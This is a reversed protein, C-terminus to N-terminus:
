ALAGDAQSEITALIQARNDAYDADDVLSLARDVDELAGAYDGLEFRVAARNNWVESLKRNAKVAMDLDALAGALDGLARRALARNTAAQADRPDLQLARDFHEIARDQAGRELALTGLGSWARPEDPKLELVRQYDAAAADADGLESHVQARNLHAEYYPPCLEIARAYQELAEDLRGHRQLLNALDNRYEGYNPDMDIARRYSESAAEFDGLMEHVQGTNYVLISQHLAFVGDGYIEEMARLGHECLELAEDLRGQRARIYALANEAFVKIYAHKPHDAFVSDIQELNLLAYREATPLDVPVQYRGHAMSQSYLATPTLRSEPFATYFLELYPKATEALGLSYLVFAMRLFALNHPAEGDPLARLETSAFHASVIEFWTDYLGIEQLAITPTALARMQSEPDGLSVHHILHQHETWESALRIITATHCETRAAPSAILYNRREIADDGVCHREVHERLLASRFRAGRAALYLDLHANLSLTGSANVGADACEFLAALAAPNGAATLWRQELARESLPAEGHWAVTLARAEELTLPEFRVMSCAPAIAVDLPDEDFLLVIRLRDHLGGRRALLRLFSRTTPSMAHANDIVLLHRRELTTAYDLLFEYVGNLLKHQFEHHYFRTREERSSSMTLDPPACFASSTLHPFLRKLSQEARQVIAPDAAEADRVAATVFAEFGAFYGSTLFGGDDFSLEATVHHEVWDRVTDAKGSGSAGVM